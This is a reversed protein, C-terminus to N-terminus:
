SLTGVDQAGVTVQGRALRLGPCPGGQVLADVKGTVEGLWTALNRMAFSVPDTVPPRATGVVKKAGKTVVSVAEGPSPPRVAKLIVGSKAKLVYVGGTSAVRGVERGPEGPEEQDRPSLLACLQRLADLGDRAAVEVRTVVEGGVAKGQLVRKLDEGDLVLVVEADEQVGDVVTAARLDVTRELAGEGTVRVSLTGGFSDLPRKQELLRPLLSGALFGADLNVMKGVKLITAM